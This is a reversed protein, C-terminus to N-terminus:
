SAAAQETAADIAAKVVTIRAAIEFVGGENAARRRSELRELSLLELHLRELELAAPSAPEQTARVALARLLATLDPDHEPVDAVPADLHSRLHVAARRVLPSTLHEDVDLRALAERGVDPLAICFALFRREPEAARDLIASLESAVHPPAARWDEDGPGAGAPEGEPEPARAPRAPARRRDADADPRPRKAAARLLGDLREFPLDLQDGLFRMLEDRVIGPPVGDMIPAVDDLIRERGEPTSRDGKAVSRRVNFQVFPLSRALLREVEEAGQARVLDAPDQGEPLPVVRLELSEGQAVRAARLMAEQGANDADLALQAVPALRRLVRVQDETLSTGMICVSNTFGAQHLAIVDTYGETVVVSGKKAAAARAVDAGYVQKRKHFLESEPTNVYKAGLSEGMARAGFGVVRGRPDALPFMVRGRFRDYLRGEGKSRTVLGADYLERNSYGARRSADM